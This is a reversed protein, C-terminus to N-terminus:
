GINFVWGVAKLSSRQQENACNIGEHLLAAKKLHEKPGKLVGLQSKPAKIHPKELHHMKVPKGAKAYMDTLSLHSSM